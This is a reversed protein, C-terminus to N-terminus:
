NSVIMMVIVIVVSMTSPDRLGDTCCTGASTATWEVGKAMVPRRTSNSPRQSAPPERQLVRGRPDTPLSTPPDPGVHKHPIQVETHHFLEVRPPELDHNVSQRKELSRLQCDVRGQDAWQGSLTCCLWSCRHQTAYRELDSSSPFFRTVWLQHAVSAPSAKNHERSLNSSAEGSFGGSEESTQGCCFHSVQRLQQLTTGARRPQTPPTGHQGTRCRTSEREGKEVPVTGCPHITRRRREVLHQTIGAVEQSTSAEQKHQSQHSVSKMERTSFFLKSMMARQVNHVSLTHRLPSASPLFFHIRTQVLRTSM